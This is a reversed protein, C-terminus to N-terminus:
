DKQLLCEIAREKTFAFLMAGRGCSNFISSLMMKKIGDLGIAVCYKVYPKNHALCKAVLERSKSDIRVNDFNAITYLSHEPYKAILSKTVEILGFFEDNMKFDSFDIYVFNKGGLTFEEVREM